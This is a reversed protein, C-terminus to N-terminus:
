ITAKTFRNQIRQTKGYEMDMELETSLTGKTLHVMMGITSEMVKLCGM